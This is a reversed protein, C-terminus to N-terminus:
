RFNGTLVFPAWYYPHSFGPLTTTAVEPTSPSMGRSTSATPGVSGRLLAIQAQRLAEIKEIGPTTAWRHYFDSMLQSTSADNVNWLTALVAAAGSRQLV